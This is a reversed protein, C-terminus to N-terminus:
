NNERISLTIDLEEKINDILEQWTVYGEVLCSTKLDFRDLFRQVRKQGFGFEDHLTATCLVMMTDVTHDKIRNIAEDCTQRSVAIPISTAGRFRIEEELGEIGKEKAVKFAYAMGEHRLKEEKNMKAM